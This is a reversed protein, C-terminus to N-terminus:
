DLWCAMCGSAPPWGTRSPWDVRSCSGSSPWGVIALRRHGGTQRAPPDPEPHPTQEGGLGALSQGIHGLASREGTAVVPGQATGQTVLTGSFVQSEGEAPAPTDAKTGASTIPKNVLVSEGTLMSAEVALNSAEVLEMDAPVRDGEALLVIDGCVVVRGAM